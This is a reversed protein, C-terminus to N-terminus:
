VIRTLHNALLYNLFLRSLTGKLRSDMNRIIIEFANQFCLPKVQSLDEANEIIKPAEKEEKRHKLKKKPKGALNEQQSNLGNNKLNSKHDESKPKRSRYDEIM